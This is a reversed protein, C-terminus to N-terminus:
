SQKYCGVNKVQWKFAGPGQFLKAFSQLIQEQVPRAWEGGLARWGVLPHKMGKQQMSPFKILAM